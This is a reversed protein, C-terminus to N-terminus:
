KMEMTDAGISETYTLTILTTQIPPPRTFCYETTCTADVSVPRNAAMGVQPQRGAIRDIDAELESTLQLLASLGLRGVLYVQRVDKLRSRVNIEEVQYGLM